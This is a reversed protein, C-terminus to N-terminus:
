CSGFSVGAGPFERKVAGKFLETRSKVGGNVSGLQNIDITEM